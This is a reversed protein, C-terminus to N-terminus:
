PFNNNKEEWFKDSTCSKNKLVDHRYTLVMNKLKRFIFIQLFFLYPADYLNKVVNYFTTFNKKKANLHSTTLSINFITPAYSLNLLIFVSGDEMWTKRLLYTTILRYNNKVNVWIGCTSNMFNALNTCILSTIAKWTTEQQSLWSHTNFM